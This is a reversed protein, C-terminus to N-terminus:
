DMQDDSVCRNSSFFTIKGVTKFELLEMKVTFSSRGQFGDLTTSTCVGAVALVSRSGFRCIATYCEPGATDLVCSCGIRTHIDM